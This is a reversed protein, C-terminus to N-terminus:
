TEALARLGDLPERFSCSGFGHAFESRMASLAEVPIAHGGIRLGERTVRVGEPRDELLVVRADSRPRGAWLVAAAAFLNLYGYM